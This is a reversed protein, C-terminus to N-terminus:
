MKDLVSWPDFDRHQKCIHQHVEQLFELDLLVQMPFGRRTEPRDPSLLGHIYTYFHEHGWYRELNRVIHPYDELSLPIDVM